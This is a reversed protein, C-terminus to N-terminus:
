GGGDSYVALRDGLLKDGVFPIFHTVEEFQLGTAWVQSRYRSADCSSAPVVYNGNMFVKVTGDGIILVDTVSLNSPYTANFLGGPYQGVSFVTNLATALDAATDGSRVHGSYMKVLSDGCGVTGGTDLSILYYYIANEPIYFGTPTSTPTETPTLSATETLTPIATPTLTATETPTLTITSTPTVNATMTAAAQRTGEAASTAQVARTAEMAIAVQTNIAALSDQNPKKALSCATLLLFLLLTLIKKTM